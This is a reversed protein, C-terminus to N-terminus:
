CREFRGSNPGRMGNSARWQNRSTDGQPLSFRSGSLATAPHHRLWRHTMTISGTVSQGPPVSERFGPFRKSQGRISVAFSMRCVSHERAVCTLGWVLHCCRVADGFVIAGSASYTCRAQSRAPCSLPQLELGARPGVWGGIWHTDPATEGLSFHRPTFIVV